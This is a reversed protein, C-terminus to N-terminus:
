QVLVTSGSLIRLGLAILVFPLLLHGFRRFV